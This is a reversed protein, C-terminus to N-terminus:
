TNAENTITIVEATVCKFFEEVAKMIITHKEILLLDNDVAKYNQVEQTHKTITKVIDKIGVGFDIIKSIDSIYGIAVSALVISMEGVMDAWRVPNRQTANAFLECCTESVNLCKIQASNQLQLSKIFDNLETLLQYAEGYANTSKIEEVRNTLHQALSCSDSINYHFIAQAKDLINVCNSLSEGLTFYAEIEGNLLNKLTTSKAKEQEEILRKLIDRSKDMQKRIKKDM